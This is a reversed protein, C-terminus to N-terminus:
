GSPLLGAPPQAYPDPQAEGSPLPGLAAVRNVASQLVCVGITWMFPLGIFINVYPIVGLISCAIMLGRPADAEMGRLRLQLNLRDCLRMSNFFVWYLNFYPIFTFGIAKGSTPDNAMARPLKDHQMGFHILPFLGFTVLHLLATAWVPFPTLSHHSLAAREGAPLQAVDCAYVNYLQPQGVVGARRLALLEERMAQNDGRLSSAERELAEARQITADRDDRYM